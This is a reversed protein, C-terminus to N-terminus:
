KSDGSFQIVGSAGESYSAEQPKLPTRSADSASQVSIPSQRKEATVPNSNKRSHTAGNSEEGTGTEVVNQPIDKSLVKVPPPIFKPKPVNLGRNGKSLESAVADQYRKLNELSSQTGEANGSLTGSLQFFIVCIIFLFLRPLTQERHSTKM